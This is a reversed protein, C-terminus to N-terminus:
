KNGGLDINEALTFGVGKNKMEEFFQDQLNEFGPVPSMGDKVLVIGTAIQPNIEIVDRVSNAVCHSSAEGAVMLCDFASLREVLKGNIQTKPDWPDVVEAKVISYHETFPNDGKVIYNVMTENLGEWNLLASYLEPVVTNGMGGILCHPPWICLPYKGGEALTTVYDLARDYLQAKTPFWIRNKVDEVSIVTFPDPRKEEANKWFLPHAIDMLQHTDLSVYIEDIRDGNKNIVDTVRLMDYDAGKVYLSGQPTAFDCQPDIILLGIKEKKAQKM